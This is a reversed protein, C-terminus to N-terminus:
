FYARDSGFRAWAWVGSAAGNAMESFNYEHGRRSQVRGDGFLLNFAFRRKFNRIDPDYRLPHSAEFESCTWLFRDAMVIRQSDLRRDTFAQPFPTFSSWSRVGAVYNYSMWLIPWSTGQDARFEKQCTWYFPLSHNDGINDNGFYPLMTQFNLDMPRTSSETKRMGYFTWGMAPDEFQWDVITSPVQGRRDQAFSSVALGWQRLNSMCNVIRAQDRAMGMVMFLLSALFGIVSIVVLLELLSFGRSDNQRFHSPKM